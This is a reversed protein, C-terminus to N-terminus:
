QTKQALGRYAVELLAQIREWDTEGETDDRLKAATARAVGAEQFRSVEGGVLVAYLRAILSGVQQPSDCGEVRRAEWWALEAKAAELPDFAHGGRRKVISYGAVLHPLVPRPHSFLSLRFNRAALGFWFAVRIASVAGLSFQKRLLAIVERFLRPWDHGYYARWMRTEARAMAVPDLNDLM